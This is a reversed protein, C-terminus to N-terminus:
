CANQNPGYKGGFARKSIFSPATASNFLDHQFVVLFTAEDDIPVAVTVVVASAVVAAANFM